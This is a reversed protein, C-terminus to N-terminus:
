TNQMLNLGAAMTM